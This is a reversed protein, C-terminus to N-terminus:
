TWYYIWNKHFVIYLPPIKVDIHKSSPTSPQISPLPNELITLYRGVACTEIQGINALKDARENGKIGAYAKVKHFSFTPVKSPAGTASNAISELSVICVQLDNILQRIRSYLPINFKGTWKGICTNIAYDSDSHVLIHTLPTPMSSCIKPLNTILWLIGEGVATLEGTNNTQVVTAGLFYVSSADTVVPGFLEALVSVTVTPEGSVDDVRAASSGGLWCSSWISKRKQKRQM